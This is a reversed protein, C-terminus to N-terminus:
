QAEGNPKGLHEQLRKQIEPWHRQIVKAVPEIQELARFLAEAVRLPSNEHKIRDDLSIEMESLAKFAYIAGELSKIEPQSSVLSDYLRSSLTSTREKVKVVVDEALREIRAMAQTQVKSKKEKWTLGKEDSEKLWTEIQKAPTKSKFESRIRKAITKPDDEECLYLYFARSKIADKM